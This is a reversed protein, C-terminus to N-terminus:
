VLDLMLLIVCQIPFVPPLKLDNLVEFLGMCSAKISDISERLQVDSFQCAKLLNVLSQMKKKLNAVLPFIRECFIDKEATSIDALKDDAMGLQIKFREIRKLEYIRHQCNEAKSVKALDGEETM